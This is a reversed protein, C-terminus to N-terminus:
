SDDSPVFIIYSKKSSDCITKKKLWSLWKHSYSLHGRDVSGWFQFPLDLLNGHLHAVLTWRQLCSSIEIHSSVHNELYFIQFIYWFDLVPLVPLETELSNRFLCADHNHKFNCVAMWKTIYFMVCIIGLRIQMAFTQMNCHQHLSSTQKNAWIFSFKKQFQSRAISSLKM